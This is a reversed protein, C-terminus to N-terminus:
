AMLNHSDGSIGNVMKYSRKKLPINEHEQVYSHVIISFKSCSGCSKYIIVAAIQVIVAQISFRIVESIGTKKHVSEM